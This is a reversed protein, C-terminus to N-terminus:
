LVIREGLMVRRSIEERDKKTFKTPDTKVTVAANNGATGNEAPRMGRARIDNVTKQQITQATYQMAGAILEDKHVVEYATRVDVGARLLDLFRSSTEANTVEAQFNFNPYFRKTDEGQQQWQAYIRDANQRREAEERARKFEANERELAKQKKLQEVTLGKQIAEDEYYSDDEEIAKVLADVDKGDVGYKNALLELM